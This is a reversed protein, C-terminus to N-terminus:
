LAGAKLVQNGGQEVFPDTAQRREVSERIMEYENCPWREPLLGGLCLVSVGLSTENLQPGHREVVSLLTEDKVKSILKSHIEGCHDIIRQKRAEEEAKAAERKAKAEPSNYRRRSAKMSCKKECYKQEQVDSEYDCNCELCTKTM